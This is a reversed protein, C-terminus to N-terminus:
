RPPSGHEPTPGEPHLRGTAVPRDNHGVATTTGGSRDAVSDEGTGARRQRAAEFALVSGAVAANLSEVRGAMPISVTRDCQGLVDASLGHAESGVVIAVAGRLDTDEPAEGVGGAAGVLAVGSETLVDALEAVEDVEAVPVRFVAGATSRVTKPNFRDACAGLLAVGACGAAEATRVLTGVNGPDAVAELVLLPRGTRAAESVLDVLGADTREVVAVVAQPTTLDLVKALTGPMVERVRVGADVAADVARHVADRAADGEVYVTRVSAGAELAETLLVPGDVLFLGEASRV